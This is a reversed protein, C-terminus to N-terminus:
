KLCQEDPKGKPFCGVRELSQLVLEEGYEHEECDEGVKALLDHWVKDGLAGKVFDSFTGGLGIGPFDENQGVDKDLDRPVGEHSHEDKHAPIVGDTEALIRYLCILNGFSSRQHEQEYQRKQDKGPRKRM